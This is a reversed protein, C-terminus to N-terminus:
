PSEMSIPIKNLKKEGREREGETEGGDATKGGSREWPKPYIKRAATKPLWLSFFPLVYTVVNFSLLNLPRKPRIGPSTRMRKAEFRITFFRDGEGELSISNADIKRPIITSCTLALEDSSWIRRDSSEQYNSPAFKNRRHWLSLLKM